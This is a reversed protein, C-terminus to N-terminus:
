GSFTGLSRNSNLLEQTPNNPDGTLVSIPVPTNKVWWALYEARVWYRFNDQVLDPQGPTVIQPGPANPSGAGEPFTIPGPAGPPASPQALVLQAALLWAGVAWRIKSRM